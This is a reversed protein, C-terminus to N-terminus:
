GCCKFVDRRFFLQICLRAESDIEVVRVNPANWITGGLQDRAPVNPVGGTKGKSRRRNKGPVVGVMVVGADPQQGRVIEMLSEGRDPDSLTGGGEGRRVHRMRLPERPPDGRRRLDRRCDPDVLRRTM